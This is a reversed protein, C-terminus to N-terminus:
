PRLASSRSNMADELTGGARGQAMPYNDALCQRDGDAAQRSSAEHIVRSRNALDDRFGDTRAVDIESM